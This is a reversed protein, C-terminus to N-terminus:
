QFDTSLQFDTEYKYSVLSFFIKCCTFYNFIGKVIETRRFSLVQNEKQWFSNPMKELSVYLRLPQM